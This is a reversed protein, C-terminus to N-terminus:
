HKGKEKCYEKLKCGECLPSIAKCYYRGFLLFLHHALIWEEKPIYKKLAEEAEKVGASSKVYDLRKSMRLLHTDIPLAPINFGLALVVSATKHGVGDLSELDKFNSPVKGDFKEVLSKSMSILNTAKNKSFGLSHIIDIVDDLLANSLSKANPYKQFLIPTVENVRKDTTQASLSVACLLEFNNKFDLEPKPNTIITKLINVIEESRKKNM